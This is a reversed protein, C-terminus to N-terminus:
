WKFKRSLFLGSLFPVPSADITKINKFLGEHKEKILVDGFGKLGIDTESAPLNVAEEPLTKLAIM